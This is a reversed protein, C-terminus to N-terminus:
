AISQHLSESSVAMEQYLSKIKVAEEMSQKPIPVFLSRYGKNGSAHGGKVRLHLVDMQGFKKIAASVLFLGTGVLWFPVGNAVVLNRAFEFEGQAQRMNLRYTKKAQYKVSLFAILGVLLLTGLGIALAVHMTLAKFSIIAVPLTAFLGIAVGVGPASRLNDQYQAQNFLQWQSSDVKWEAIFEHVKPRSSVLESQKKNNELILQRLALASLVFSLVIGTWRGPTGGQAMLPLVSMILWAVAGIFVLTLLFVRLGFGDKKQEAM